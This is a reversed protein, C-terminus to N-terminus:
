RRDSSVPLWGLVTRYAVLPLLLPVGAPCPSAAATSAGAWSLVVGDPRSALVSFSGGGIRLAEEELMCAGGPPGLVEGLLKAQVLRVAGPPPAYGTPFGLNEGPLPPANVARACLMLGAFMALALLYSIAPTGYPLIRPDPGPAALRRAKARM